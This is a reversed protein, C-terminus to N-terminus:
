INKVLSGRDDRIRKCWALMVIIEIMTTVVLVIAFVGGKENEFGFSIFLAMMALSFVTLAYSLIMSLLEKKAVLGWLGMCIMFFLIYYIEIM